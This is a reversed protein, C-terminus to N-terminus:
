AHGHGTGHVLCASRLVLHQEQAVRARGRAHGRRQVRRLRRAHETADRAIVRYEDDASVVRLAFSELIVHVLQELRLLSPQNSLFSTHFHFLVLDNERIGASEVCRHADLPEHLLLAEVDDSHGTVHALLTLVELEDLVLGQLYTGNLRQGDVHALFVDVVEEGLRQGGVAHVLILIRHHARQRAGDDGLVEDIDRVLVTRLVDGMPARALSVVLNTELNGDLAEIGLDLHESGHALPIQVRTVILHLIGLVVANGYGRGLGRGVGDVVVEPTTGDLAALELVRPALRELVDVRHGRRAVLRRGFALVDDDAELGAHGARQVALLHAEVVDDELHVLDGTAVPKTADVHDLVTEHAHLAALAVFHGTREGDDLRVLRELVQAQLALKQM